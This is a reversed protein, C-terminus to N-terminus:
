HASTQHTKTQHSICVVYGVAGWIVIIFVLVAIWFAGQWKM